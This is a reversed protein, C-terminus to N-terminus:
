LRMRRSQPDYLSTLSARADFRSGAIEIQFKSKLVDDDQEDSQCSVFGLGVSAGLHHGYAGSTVYGAVAGDRIIPENHFLMPMPDELMLQVMRKTFGEQRKKLVADRGIFHGFPGVPKDPKVAFGLGAELVHDDGAIDHGFHRYAKEIRCCDIALMGALSGGLELRRKDINSFAHRAMDTAVYIEWGLEGVYSVRHLRVRAMGLEAEMVAAFPFAKNSLDVSVIPALLERARPGAVAFCAEASTVDIASCHADEPIHRELWALDRTLAFASTVVMFVNEALRAVTLDAEVGGRSNLWQTYVLRGAPIDVDNACVRQLVALADRGVVRIKGFPSMDMVAVNQRIAAHEAAVNTFWHQRGWGLDLTPVVGAACQDQTSYFLPREFGAAEGFCAGRAALAEHVPLHRVGRATAYQRYPWHDAFLLGLTEEVRTVLYSKTAQFPFMRRIDVDTLDM